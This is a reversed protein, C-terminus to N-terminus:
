APLCTCCSPKPTRRRALPNITEFGIVEMTSVLRVHCPCIGIHDRCSHKANDNVTVHGGITIVTCSLIAAAAAAAVVVVVVVLAVVVAVLSNRNSDDSQELPQVGMQGAVRSQSKLTHMAAKSLLKCHNPNQQEQHSPAHAAAEKALKGPAPDLLPPGEGVHRSPAEM